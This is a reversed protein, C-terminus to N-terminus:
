GYGEGNGILKEIEELAFWLGIEEVWQNRCVRMSVREKMMENECGRVNFDENWVRGRFRERDSKLFRNGKLLVEGFNSSSEL